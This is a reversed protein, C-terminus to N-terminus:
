NIKLRNKNRELQTYRKIAMWEKVGEETSFVKCEIIRVAKLLIEFLKAYATQVPGAVLIGIRIWKMEPLVERIKEFIYDQDDVSYRINAYRLDEVVSLCDSFYDANRIDEIVSYQDFLVVDDKFQIYILDDEKRYEISYAM